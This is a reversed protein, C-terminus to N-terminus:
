WFVSIKKRQHRKNGYHDIRIKISYRVFSSEGARCFLNGDLQWWIFRMRERALLLVHLVAAISGGRYFDRKDVWLKFISMAFSSFYMTSIAFILEYRNHVFFKRFFNGYFFEWLFNPAFKYQTQIRRWAWNKDLESLTVIPMGDVTELASAHLSMMEFM